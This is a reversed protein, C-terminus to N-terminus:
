PRCRITVATPNSGVGKRFPAKLWRRLGSPWVTRSASCSLGACLGEKRPVMGMMALVDHAEGLRERNTERSRICASKLVNLSVVFSPIKVEFACAPLRVRTVLMPPKYSAAVSRAGRIDHHRAAKKGHEDPGHLSAHHLLLDGCVPAQMVGVWVRM